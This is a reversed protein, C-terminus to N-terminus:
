WRLFKSMFIVQTDLVCFIFLFQVVTFMWVQHHQWSLSLTVQYHQWSLSPTVQYHQWSLTVFRITNDPCYPERLQPDNGYHCPELLDSVSRSQPKRGMMQLSCFINIGVSFVQVSISLVTLYKNLNLYKNGCIFIQVNM